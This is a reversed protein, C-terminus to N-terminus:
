KVIFVCLFGKYKNNPDNHILINVQVLGYRPDGCLYSPNTVFLHFKGNQDIFAIKQNNKLCKNAYNPRITTYLCYTVNFNQM